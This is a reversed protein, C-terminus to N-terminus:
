AGRVLSMVDAGVRFGLTYFPVQEALRAVTDLIREVGAHHYYPVLANQLLREVGHRRGFPAVNHGGARDLIFLKELPVGGPSCRAPSTHWPTGYILFQSGRRRLIVQDEGLVMASHRDALEGAVTSKGAGSPGVFAYGAGRDDVGAAHLLLDGTEALMNVVLVMDIDQLPYVARGNAGGANFQGLVEGWRFSADVAVQRAPPSHASPVFVRRGADDRWLQWSEAGRFLAHWGATSRPAGDRVRLSLGGRPRGELRFPAHCPPLTLPVRSDAGDLWLELEALRFGIVGPTGCGTTM